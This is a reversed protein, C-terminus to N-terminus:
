CNDYIRELVRISQKRLKEETYKDTFSLIDFILQHRYVKMREKEDAIKVAEEAHRKEVHKLFIDKEQPTMGEVTKPTIYMSDMNAQERANYIMTIM